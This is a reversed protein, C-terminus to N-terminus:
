PTTSENRRVKHFINVPKYLLCDSPLSATTNIFKLCLKGLLYTSIYQKGHIRQTNVSNTYLTSLM